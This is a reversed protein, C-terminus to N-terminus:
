CPASAANIAGNNPVFVYAGTASNVYLTGYTGAKSVDYTTGNVVTSGSTGDTIGYTLTTGEVDTASLTGTWGTPVTRALAFGTSACAASDNNRLSITYTNATGPVVESTPGTLTM